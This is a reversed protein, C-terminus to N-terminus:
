ISGTSGNFGPAKPKLEFCFAFKFLKEQM